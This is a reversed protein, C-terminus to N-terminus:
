ETAESDKAAQLCALLLFLEGDLHTFYPTHQMQDLILVVGTLEGPPLTSTLRGIAEAVLNLLDVESPM